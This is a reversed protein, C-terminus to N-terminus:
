RVFSGFQAKFPKPQEEVSSEGDVQTIPDPQPSVEESPKNNVDEDKM